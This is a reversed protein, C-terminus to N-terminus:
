VGSALATSMPRDDVADAPLGATGAGADRPAGGGHHHTVTCARIVPAGPEPVKVNEDCFTIGSTCGALNPSSQIAPRPQPKSQHPGFLGKPQPAPTYPGDSQAPAASSTEMAADVRVLKLEEQLGRLKVDPLCCFVLCHRLHQWAHGASTAPGQLFHIHRDVHEWSRTAAELLSCVQCTCQWHTYAANTLCQM